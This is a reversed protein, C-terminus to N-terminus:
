KAAQFSSEAAFLCLLALLPVFTVDYNSNSSAEDDRKQAGQWLQECDWFHDISSPLSSPLNATVHLTLSMAIPSHAALLVHSTTCTLSSSEDIATLENRTLYSLKTLKKLMKPSMM